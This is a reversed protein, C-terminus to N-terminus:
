KEGEARPQQDRSEQQHDGSGAVADVSVHVRPGSQTATDNEQDQITVGKRTISFTRKVFLAMFGTTAVFLQAHAALGLYFVYEAVGKVLYLALSAYATMLGCAGILACFALGRRGEANKLWNEMM